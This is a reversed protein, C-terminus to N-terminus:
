MCSIANTDYGKIKTLEVMAGILIPIDCLAPLLVFKLVKSPTLRHNEKCKRPIQVTAFLISTQM